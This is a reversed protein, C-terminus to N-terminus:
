SVLVAMQTKTDGLGLADVRGKASTPTEIYVSGPLDLLGVIDLHAPSYALPESEYLIANPQGNPLSKAPWNKIFRGRLVYLHAHKISGCNLMFGNRCSCNHVDFVRCM